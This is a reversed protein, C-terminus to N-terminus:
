LSLVAQHRIEDRKQYYSTQIPHFSRHQSNIKLDTNIAYPYKSRHKNIQNTISDKFDTPKINLIFLFLVLSNMVLFWDLGDIYQNTDDTVEKM